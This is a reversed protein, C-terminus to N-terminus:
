PRRRRRAAAPRRRCRGGARRGRRARSPMRGTRAAGRTRAARCRRAGPRAVGPRALGAAVLQEVDRHGLHAALAPRRVLDPQRRQVHRRREVLQQRGRRRGRARGTRRRSARRRRARRHRDADDVPRELLAAVRQPSSRPPAAPWTAITPPGRLPLLVRTRVRTVRARASACGSSLGTRRAQVEAAAGERRQGLQRVDRPTAVRLSGSTTRRMTASTAAITSARSASSGRARADVRDLGVPAAPGLATGVVAYPSTNRTTSPQGVM